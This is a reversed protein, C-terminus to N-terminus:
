SIRKQSNNKDLKSLLISKKQKCTFKRGVLGKKRLVSHKCIPIIQSEKKFKRTKQIKKICRCLKASLISESMKRKQTKNLKRKSSVKYYKLIKDYDKETLRM